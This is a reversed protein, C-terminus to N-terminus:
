GVLNCSNAAGSDVEFEMLVDNLKLTVAFKERYNIHETNISLIEEVQNANAKNKLCVKSVHGKANCSTCHLNKKMCKNATHNNIGCRFCVIPKNTVNTNTTTSQNKSTNNLRKNKYTIQNVSGSANHLQAADRHSTEMSIAVEIAKEITVDKVELLRSQINQARLGFVFKNRLAKKLYQGFNCTIALKQLATLYDKVKEGEHQKRQLFRFNEAIELPEPNFHSKMTDVLEVYTKTNPLEPSIKDCLVDYAEPGM